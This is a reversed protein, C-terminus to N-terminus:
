DIVPALTRRRIGPMQSPHSWCTAVLQQQQKQQQETLDTPRDNAYIPEWKIGTRAKSTGRIFSRPMQVMLCSVDERRRRGFEM